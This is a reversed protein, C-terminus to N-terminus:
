VGRQQMMLKALRAAMSEDGIMALVDARGGRLSRCVVGVRHACPSCYLTMDAPNDTSCYVTRGDSELVGVVTEDPIVFPALRVLVLGSITRNMVVGVFRGDGAGLPAVRLDKDAVVLAGYFFPLYDAGGQPLLGVKFDINVHFRDFHDTLSAM